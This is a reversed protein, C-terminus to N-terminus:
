FITRAVRLSHVGVTGCVTTAVVHSIQLSFVFFDESLTMGHGDQNRGGPRPGCIQKGGIMMLSHKETKRPVRKNKTTGNHINSFRLNPEGRFVM